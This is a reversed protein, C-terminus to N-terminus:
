GVAGLIRQLIPRRQVFGSKQLLGDLGMFRGPVLFLFALFVFMYVVYDNVIPNNQVPLQSIYFLFNIAIGSIAGVRTFIGLMISMGILLEGYVVLAEVVPNGALGNFFVAFPGSVAHALFGSTAMKGGLETEIKEIGGWLFMFGIVLRLGFTAWGKGSKPSGGFLMERWTKHKTVSQVDGM